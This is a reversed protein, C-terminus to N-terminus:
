ARGLGGRLLRVQSSAAPVGVRYQRLLYNTLLKIDKPTNQLENWKREEHEAFYWHGSTWSCAPKLLELDHTFDELTPTQEPLLREAITDMVFGLSVIGVGHMLRSRRPPLGWADGFVQKVASWFVKLLPLMAEADAKKNAGRLH